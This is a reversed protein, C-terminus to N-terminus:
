LSTLSIPLFEIAAELTFSQTSSLMRSALAVANVYLTLPILRLLGNLCSPVGLYGVIALESLAVGAVGTLVGVTVVSWTLVSPAVTSALM